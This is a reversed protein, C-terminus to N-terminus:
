ALREATARDLAHRLPVGAAYRALEDAVLAGMRACEGAQSGAIHPTVVVNPLTWLPSDPPSPEPDTVDLVAFLDPREALVRVLADQDVVAGRATNILTAHRKMGRLLHAGVLSRTDPLLPTHVSVVDSDAFVEDIGALTVGCDAALEDDAYPDYALVRVDRDRLGRAVSRGIAGLSLLGVTSGYGGAMPLRAARGTARGVLVHRWVQKLAYTISALTFEVVPIANVSYASVIPIGRDWFAPTAIRRVSGAGYLVLRLRPAATLLAEDLVPAGWTACLVEVDALDEPVARITAEDRPGWAVVAHQAIRTRVEATYV